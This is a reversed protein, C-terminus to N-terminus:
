WGRGRARGRGRGRGRDTGAYLDQQQITNAHQQRFLNTLQSVATSIETIRNELAHLRGDQAPSAPVRQKDKTSDKDENDNTKTDKSQAPDVLLEKLDILGKKWQANFLPIVKDAMTSGDRSKVISAITSAARLFVLHLDDKTPENELETLSVAMQMYTDRETMYQQLLENSRFVGGCHLLLKDWDADWRKYETDALYYNFYLANYPAKVTAPIRLGKVLVITEEPQKHDVLARIFDGTTPGTTVGFTQRVRPNPGQEPVQTLQLAQWASPREPEEDTTGEIRRMKLPQEAQTRVFRILGFVTGPNDDDDPPFWFTGKAGLPQKQVYTVQLATPNTPDMAKTVKGTWLIWRSETPTVDVFEEEHNGGPRESRWYCFMVDGVRAANMARVQQDITLAADPPPPPPPTPWSDLAVSQSRAPM